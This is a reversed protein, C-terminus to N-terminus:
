ISFLKSRHKYKRLLYVLSWTPELHSLGDMPRTVEQQLWLVARQPGKPQPSPGNTVGTFAM